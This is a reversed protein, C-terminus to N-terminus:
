SRWSRLDELEDTESRDQSRRRRVALGILAVIGAGAALLGGVALGSRREPSGAGSPQAPSGEEAAAGVPPIAPAPFSAGELRIWHAVSPVGSADKIVLMYYGPPAVNGNIPTDASLGGEAQRFTLPVYRQNSDFGHTVASPRILAVSSIRAADPTAVTLSGAYQAQEPASTITPRPGKFLYPPSYIQVQDTTRQVEGGGIVLRGDPLLAAATHYMRPESLPAVTTWSEIEPDFIEGEFVAAKEDDAYTTGGVAMVTGDALITLNHRRRPFAMPAVSRWRQSGGMDIVSARKSATLDEDGGARLIKGPAYMAGSESYSATSHDSRPGETWFGTGAPNLLWTRATPGGEFVRGNPLVYMFPYLPEKPTRTVPLKTWTNTAPDYVEPHPAREGVRIDGSTSLVRGDALTTSIPYWRPYIMDAGRSWTNTFPDFLATVPIGFHTEETGIQGGLVVVRGDALTSQGSCHIDGFHSPVPAPTLNGTAPDWVKPPNASVAEWVLVSGTPLVVLHMAKIDWNLLPGWEGVQDRGTAPAARGLEPPLLAMMVAVLAFLFRTRNSTAHQLRRDGGFHRQSLAVAFRSYCPKM